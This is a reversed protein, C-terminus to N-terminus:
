KTTDLVEYPFDLYAERWLPLIGNQALQLAGRAREELQYAPM